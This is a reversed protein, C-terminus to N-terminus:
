ADFSAFGRVWVEEIKGQNQLLRVHLEAPSHISYGQEYCLHIEKRNGFLGFHHLLTSLAAASTGTASDEMIGVVPAFNRCHATSGHLTEQTFCYMGISNYQLAVSSIADFNPVIANLDQISRVPVFIKFLGTSAIQIPLTPHLQETMIGLAHAVGEPPVIAGFTPLNQSM